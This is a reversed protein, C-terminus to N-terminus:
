RIIGNVFCLSEIYWYYIASRTSTRYSSDYGPTFDDKLSIIKDVCSVFYGPLIKLSFKQVLCIQFKKKPYFQMKFHLNDM